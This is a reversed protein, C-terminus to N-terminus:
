RIDVYKKYSHLSSDEHTWGCYCMDHPKEEPYTTIRGYLGHLSFVRKVLPNGLIILTRLAKPTENKSALVYSM